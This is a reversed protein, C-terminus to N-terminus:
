GLEYWLIYGIAFQPDKDLSLYIVSCTSQLPSQAYYGITSRAGFQWARLGGAKDVKSFLGSLEASMPHRTVPDPWPSNAWFAALESKPVRIILSMYDDLGAEFQYGVVEPAPKTSIGVLALAQSATAPEQKSHVQVCATM